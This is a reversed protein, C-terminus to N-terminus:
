ARSKVAEGISIEGGGGVLYILKIFNVVLSDSQGNSVFLLGAFGTAQDIKWFWSDFINM